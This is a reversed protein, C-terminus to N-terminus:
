SREENSEGVNYLEFWYCLDLLNGVEMGSFELVVEWDVEGCYM